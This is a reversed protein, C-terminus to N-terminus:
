VLLSARRLCGSGSRSSLASGLRLFFNHSKYGEVVFIEGGAVRIGAAFCPPVDRWSVRRSMGGCFVAPGVPPTVRRLKVVRWRWGGGAVATRKVGAVALWWGGGGANQCGGGGAVV